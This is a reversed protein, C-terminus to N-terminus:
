LTHLHRVVNPSAMELRSVGQRAYVVKSRKDSDVLDVPGYGVSLNNRLEKVTQRVVRTAAHPM